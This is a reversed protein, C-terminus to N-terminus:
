RWMKSGTRELHRRWGLRSSAEQRSVRPHTQHGVTCRCYQVVDITAECLEANPPVRSQDSQPAHRRTRSRPVPTPRASSLCPRTSSGHPTSRSASGRPGPLGAVMAQQCSPKRGRRADVLVGAVMRKRSQDQCRSLTPRDTWAGHRSCGHWVTGPDSLYKGM